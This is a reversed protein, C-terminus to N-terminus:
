YIDWLSVKGDKSGAALWHATQARWLRKEKVSVTGEREVPERGEGGPAAREGTEVDAFAVSYCGERHWKLVALEQMSKVAYVRVRADWGATAFVRGDNRIRISQQGAHKSQLTKLPMNGRDRAAALLATRTALPHKAIVADAASTLYYDRAPSVDLSLIPQTHAKSTYLTTWTSNAFQSVATHGSEYGAIALLHRTQPHSLLSVAMVMGGNLSPPSPVTHIRQSSPLHFIDVTESSLTSPVAILLEEDGPELPCQAFSCFNMTNVHLLHRLWPQRRPTPPNDVPLVKSMPEEDEPSLKWVVLKNDKGHTIIKDPGWASAGLIVGEHARWVAVPRKTALSWVVVWGAADGTVLRSNSRIFATTHIQSAHGRLIYAPQAPPLSMSRRGNSAPPHTPTPPSPQAIPATDLQSPRHRHTTPRAVQARPVVLRAQDVEGCMGKKIDGKRKRSGNFGGIGDETWATFATPAIEERAIM